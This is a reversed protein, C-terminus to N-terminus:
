SFRRTASAKRVDRFPVDRDLEPEKPLGLIREGIINRQVQDTGGGISTVYAAFASRNVEAAEPSSDGDLVSEAGLLATTVRVGTHVIRSMALKGLSAVPSSAGAGAEARGRLSNWRNVQEYTYLKAIEQRLIPDASRGTTKALEVYDAGGVKRTWPSQRAATIAEPSTKDKKERQTGGSAGMILREFGLATQLVRWGDNVEGLRHDDPVRADTFFVENFEAGGTVQRIPRVEVGPQRMPFWFFTIGRHKPQDWDTRAVLLGHTAEKAASTWVKQGNVVWDQGDREARTQLAALDSGAGPESYLLCGKQEGLVVPRLFRQKQEETGHALITNAYLNHVDQNGGKAGVRTFEAAVVRRAERPLGRGFFERPWTPAGWGSELLAQRWEDRPREPDWNEALWASVESRVQELDPATTTM